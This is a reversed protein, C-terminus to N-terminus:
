VGTVTPFDAELAIVERTVLNLLNGVPAVIGGCRTIIGETARRCIAIEPHKCEFGMIETIIAHAPDVRTTSKAPTLEKSCRQNM